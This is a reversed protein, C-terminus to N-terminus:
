PRDKVAKFTTKDIPEEPERDTRKKPAAHVMRDHPTTDLSRTDPKEVEPQPEAEVVEVMKVETLTGPSDNNVLAALEETIEVVDDKAGVTLGSAYRQTFRFRPM